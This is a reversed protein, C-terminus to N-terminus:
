TMLEERSCTTCATRRATSRAAGESTQRSCWALLDASRAHCTVIHARLSMCDSQYSCFGALQMPSPRKGHASATLAAILLETADDARGQQPPMRDQLQDLRM